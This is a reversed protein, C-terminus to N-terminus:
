WGAVFLKAHTNGSAYRADLDLWSGHMGGVTDPTREVNIEEPSADFDFVGVEPGSCGLGLGPEITSHGLPMDDDLEIMFMAWGVETQAHVEISVADEGYEWASVMSTAQEDFAGITPMDGDLEGFVQSGDALMVSQEPLREASCAALTLVAFALPLRNM